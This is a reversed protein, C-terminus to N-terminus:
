LLGTGAHDRFLEADRVYGRLTDVSKHGTVDMLKFLSAGRKAASTVFGARLSHGAFPAPDLGVREAAAKVIDAVCRGTMREAGLRPGWVRRFIPGETTGAAKLRARLAKVPCVVSGRIIAKTYGHGEQDTKSRRIVIRLGEESETVDAVDLAVLESRRFAGAFGLLLVARDRLAKLSGNGPGAMAIVLDSTAPVKKTPAAGVARRIGALTAKVREDDTPVPKGALKHAFRIAAVRRSITSPKIGRSAEAGLFMAVTAPVAPLAALDRDACWARFIDFDIRYARRTAASKAAEAFCAATALEAELVGLMGTAAETTTLEGM